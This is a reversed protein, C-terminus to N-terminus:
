VMFNVSSSPAQSAGASGASDLSAFPQDASQLSQQLQSFASQAASLNGSQLDQGLTGFEQALSNTSSSQSAAGSFHHHHHIIQSTRQRVNQEITAFDQRAASLNGSQLDQGLQQFEAQATSPGSQNTANSSQASQSGLLNLLGGALIGTLSMM